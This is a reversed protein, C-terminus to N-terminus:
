YYNGPFFSRENLDRLVYEPRDNDKKEQLSYYLLIQALFIHQTSGHTKKKKRKACRFNVVPDSGFGLHFGIRFVDPHGQLRGKKM